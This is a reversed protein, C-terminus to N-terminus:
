RRATQALDATLLREFAKLNDMGFGHLEIQRNTEVDRISLRGDSWRTLRTRASDLSLGALRRDRELARLVGLAFGDGELTLRAVQEGSAALVAVDGGGNREFRLERSEVAEAVPIRVAGVEGYRGAIAAILALVVIGMASYLAIKPISERHDHGYQHSAM